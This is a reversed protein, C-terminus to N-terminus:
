EGKGPLVYVGKSLRNGTNICRILYYDGAKYGPDVYVNVNGPFLTEMGKAQKKRKEIIVEKLNIDEPNEWKIVLGKSTIRVDVSAVEEEYLDEKEQVTNAGQYDLLFNEMERDTEKSPYVVVNVPTDRYTFVIISVPVLLFLAALAYVVAPRFLATFFKRPPHEAARKLAEHAKIEVKESLVVNARNKLIDLYNIKKKMKEQREWPILYIGQEVFVM